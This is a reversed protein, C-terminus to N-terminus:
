LTMEHVVQQIRTFRWILPLTGRPSISTGSTSLRQQSERRTQIDSKRHCHVDRVHENDLHVVDQQAQRVSRHRDML